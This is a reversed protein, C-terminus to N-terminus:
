QKRKETIPHRRPVQSLKTALPHTKAEDKFIDNSL